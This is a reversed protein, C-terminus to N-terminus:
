YNHCTYRCNRIKWRKFFPFKRWLTKQTWGLAMSSLCMNPGLNPNRVQGGNWNFPCQYCVTGLVVRRNRRTRSHVTISSNRMPKHINLDYQILIQTNHVAIGVPLIHRSRGSFRFEYFYKWGKKRCNINIGVCM